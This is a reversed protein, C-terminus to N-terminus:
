AAESHIAVPQGRRPRLSFGLAVLGLLGLGGVVPIRNRRTEECREYTGPPADDVTTMGPEFVSNCYGTTAQDFLPGDAGGLVLSAAILAAGLSYWGLRELRAFCGCVAVFMLVVGDFTLQGGKPVSWIAILGLSGVILTRVFRRVMWSTDEAYCNVTDFCGSQRTPRSLRHAHAFTATVAAQGPTLVVRRRRGMRASKRLLLRSTHEQEWHPAIEWRYIVLADRGHRRVLQDRIDLRSGDARVLEWTRSALVM